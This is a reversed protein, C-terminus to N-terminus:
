SPPHQIVLNFSIVFCYIIFYIVFGVFYRVHQKSIIDGIIFWIIVLVLQIFPINANILVSRDIVFKLLFPLVLIILPVLYVCILSNKIFKNVLNTPLKEEKAKRNLFDFFIIMFTAVLFFISGKSSGVIINIILFTILAFYLLCFILGTKKIQQIIKEM